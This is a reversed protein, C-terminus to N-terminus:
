KAKEYSDSRENRSLLENQKEWLEELEGQRLDRLYSMILLRLEEKKQLPSTPM